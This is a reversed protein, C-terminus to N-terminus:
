ICWYVECVCFAGFNMLGDQSQNM